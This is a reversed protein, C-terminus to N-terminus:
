NGRSSVLLPRTANVTSLEDLKNDTTEQLAVDELSAGSTM